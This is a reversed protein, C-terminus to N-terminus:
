VQEIGREISMLDFHGGLRYIDAGARINERLRHEEYETLVSLLGPELQWGGFGDDPETAAAPPSAVAADLRALYDVLRHPDLAGPRADVRGLRIADLLNELRHALESARTLGFLGTLGKLSHVARFCGNILDPDAPRGAGRQREVELLSSQLTEVIEQAEALFEGLARDTGTSM